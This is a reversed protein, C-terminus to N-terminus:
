FLLGEQTPLTWDSPLKCVSISSCLLVSAFFALSVILMFMFMLWSPSLINISFKTVYDKLLQHLKWIFTASSILILQSPPSFWSLCDKVFWPSNFFVGDFLGWPKSHVEQSRVLAVKVQSEEISVSAKGLEEKSQPAEKLINIKSITVVLTVKFRPNSCQKHAENGVRVFEGEDMLKLWPFSRHRSSGKGECWTSECGKFRGGLLLTHFPALNSPCACYVPGLWLSGYM